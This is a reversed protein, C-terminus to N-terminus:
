FRAARHKPWVYEMDSSETWGFRGYHDADKRLLNSRHSAHFSEDGLWSPVADYDPLEAIWAYDSHLVVTGDEDALLPVVMSNRYGRDIWEAIVHSMYSALSLECGSWMLAAPHRSWGSTSGSLASLLQM